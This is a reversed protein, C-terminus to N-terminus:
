KGPASVPAEGGMGYMNVGDIGALGEDAPSGEEWRPSWEMGHPTQGRPEARQWQTNSQTRAWLVCSQLM